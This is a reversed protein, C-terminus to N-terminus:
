KKALSFSTTEADTSKLSIYGSWNGVTITSGSTGIIFEFTADAGTGTIKDGAVTYTGTYSHNAGFVAGYSVLTVRTEASWQGNASIILSNITETYRDSGKKESFGGAWTGIFPSTSITIM